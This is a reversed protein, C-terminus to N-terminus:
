SALTKLESNQTKLKSNQAGLGSGLASLESGLLAFGAAPEGCRTRDGGHDVFVVTSQEILDPRGSKAM